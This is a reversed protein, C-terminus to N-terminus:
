ARVSACRLFETQLGDVFADAFEAAHRHRPVLGQVANWVPRGDEDRVLKEVGHGHVLERARLAAPALPEDGYSPADRCLALAILAVLAVHRLPVRRVGRLVSSPSFFRGANSITKDGPRV